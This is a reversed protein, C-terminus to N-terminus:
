PRFVGAAVRDFHRPPSMEDREYFNTHASNALGDGYWPRSPTQYGRETAAFGVHIRPWILSRSRGVATVLAATKSELLICLNPVCTATLEKQFRPEGSRAALHFALLLHEM